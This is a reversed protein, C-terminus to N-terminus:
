PAAGALVIAATEVTAGDLIGPGLDLMVLMPNRKLLIESRLKKFTTLKTFTSSVLAGVYGESETLQTARDIFAAYIDNYTLPYAARAYDKVSAVFSGYPPNMVVVDFRRSLLRLLALGRVTDEAFLQDAPDGAEAAATELAASLRSLLEDARTRLAERGAAVEAVRARDVQEVFELREAGDRDDPALLGAASAKAEVWRDLSEVASERVRVLVGLESVHRMNDWLASFLRRSLEPEGAHEGLLEVLERLREEAVPVANAVVLNTRRLRVDTPAVGHRAGAEKATFLLALSAIQIARPDIDVGFLNNEVIMAPIDSARQVPADEPWGPYGVHQLEELYMREFLTFAYQGFHMTGCAPDLLTIERVSKFVDVIGDERRRAYRIDEGTRPVLYDAFEGRLATDPHMQIWLRGLTNDVLAKVVWAPTYFQNIVALEYSSRPTGGSAVRVTEKEDRNFFQYVWGLLDSAKYAAEPLGDNVRAIADVLAAHTPWVCAYEHDPDFVHAVETTLHRFAAELADHVLREEADDGYRYAGGGADRLDRMYRSYEQQAVPTLLETRQPAANPQNPSPLYLLGRMEMAKLGVLRNLLTYTLERVVTRYGQEPGGEGAADHTLLAEVRARVAFDADDLNM